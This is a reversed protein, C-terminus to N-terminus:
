LIQGEELYKDEGFQKLGFDGYWMDLYESSHEWKKLIFSQFKKVLETPSFSNNSLQFTAGWREKYSM